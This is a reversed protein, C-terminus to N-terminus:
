TFYANKDINTPSAVLTPLELNSKIPAFPSDNEPKVIHRLCEHIHLEWLSLLQTAGEGRGSQGERRKAYGGGPIRPLIRPLVTRM